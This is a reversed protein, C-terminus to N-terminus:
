KTKFILLLSKMFVKFGLLGGRFKINMNHGERLQRRVLRLLDYAMKVEYDVQLRVDNWMKQKKTSEQQLDEGARKSSEKARIESGKAKDKVVETDMSVFSNIWSMTKDFAKQVEDFSQEEVSQLHIWGYKKSLCVNSEKKSSQNSTKKEERRSIREEEEQEAQLKFALEEDLSIQAKKKLPMEPEVMKGKGKNKFKTLILITTTTAESPKPEHDRVVIGKIKPMSTKLAELAKALTIDDVTLDKAATTTAVSVQDQAADVKEDDLVWTDFMEQENVLTINDDDDIDKIRGQKSSEEEGLSEEKASSEVRACLGVKYLRKLGHSRSKKKSELRKVRKKLNAIEKAQATKIKELDLVMDPLKTCLEMLEKLQLRVEGSGLTNVRSLPPDNSFKSVRESTTQADADRMTEQRRPGSGLSTEISGILPLQEFIVENSLFDVGGKDEFKLDRRITAESIIVKNGDINAHIQAEGNINKANATVCFQEICSNYITPNVTLAYKIPNPNLFDIIQEFGESETPKSLFAVLNHVDAFKLTSM